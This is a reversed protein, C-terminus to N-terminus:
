IGYETIAVTRCLLDLAMTSDPASHLGDDVYFNNDVFSKTDSGFKAEGVEATKRLAYNAVAPSLTNGFIHVKMRYETIAGNPDNDKYWLFWLFDRFEEKVKFSHFMQEINGVLAVPDQRFRLLVGLLINTLDPGSLLLKNLFM